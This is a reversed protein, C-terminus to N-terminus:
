ADGAGAPQERAPILRDRHHGRHCGGPRAGQGRHGGLFVGAPGHDGRAGPLPPDPRGGGHRDAQGSSGAGHPDALRQARRAGLADARRHGQQLAPRLAGARGLREGRDLRPRDPRCRPFRGGRLPQDGPRAAPAGAVRPRGRRAQLLPQGGFDPLWGQRLALADTGALQRQAPRHEAPRRCRSLRPHDRRFFKPLSDPALRKDPPVAM